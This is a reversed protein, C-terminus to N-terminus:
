LFSGRFSGFDFRMLVAASEGGGFCFSEGGPAEGRAAKALLSSKGPWAPIFAQLIEFFSSSALSPFSKSKRVLFGTM